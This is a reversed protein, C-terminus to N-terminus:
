SDLERELWNIAGKAQGFQKPTALRWEAHPGSIPDEGEKCAVVHATDWDNGLIIVYYSM